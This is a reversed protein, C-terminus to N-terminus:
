LKTKLEELLAKASNKDAFDKALTNNAQLITHAEEYKGSANLNYAIHYHTSPASSNLTYAERLLALGAQLDGNLTLLWGKTDMIPASDPMLEEARDSYAIAGQLDSDQYIIALNNYIFAKRPLNEVDLLINYQVVAADYNQNTFLTDAMLHRALHNEPNASLLSDIHSLFPAEPMGEKVLQYMKIIPQQFQEDMQSAKLYHVFAKKPNGRAIELDGALLETNPTQGFLKIFQTLETQASELQQTNTLLRIYELRLNAVNPAQEIAKLLSLQAGEYDRAVIQLKSLGLLKDPQDGWQAFVAGLQSRADKERNLEILVQAKQILFDTSLRNMSLLQNIEALAGEWDQQERYVNALLQRPKISNGSLDKATLLQNIAQEYQKEAAHIQAALLLASM